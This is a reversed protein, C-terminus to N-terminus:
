NVIPEPVLVAIAPTTGAGEATIVKANPDCNPGQFPDCPAGIGLPALPSLAPVIAESTLPETIPSCAGGNAYLCVSLWSVPSSSSSPPARQTTAEASAASSASARIAPCEAFGADPNGLCIQVLSPPPHTASTAVAPKATPPHRQPRTMPAASTTRTPLPVPTISHHSTSSPSPTCAEDRKGIPLPATPWNKPTPFTLQDIPYRANYSSMYTQWNALQRPHLRPTLTNVLLAYDTPVDKRWELATSTILHNQSAIKSIMWDKYDNAWSRRHGADDFYIHQCHSIAADIGQFAQYIRTNTSEFLKLVIPNNAMDMVLALNNLYLLSKMVGNYNKPVAKLNPMDQLDPNWLMGKFSNLGADMGLFDPNQYSPLQAFITNLRTGGNIVDHVDFVNAMEACTVSENQYSFFEDLLKVEYVHDINVRTGVDGGLRYPQPQAALQLTDVFAWGPAGNCSVQTPVAWFAATQYFKSMSPIPSPGENNAVSAPGPYPPKYTYKSMTCRGGAVVTRTMLQRGREDLRFRGGIHGGRERKGFEDPITSPAYHLDVCSDCSSCSTTSSSTSSTQTSLTTMSAAQFSSEKVKSKTNSSGPKDPENGPGNVPAPGPEGIGPVGAGVVPLVPIIGGSGITVPSTVTTHDGDTRTALYQVTEITSSALNSPLAITASSKITSTPITFKRTREQPGLSSTSSSRGAVTSTALSHHISSTSKGIRSMAEKFSSHGAIASTAERSQSFSISSSSMVADGAANTLPSLTALLSSIAVVIAAVMSSEEASNTPKVFGSQSVGNSSQHPSTSKSLLLPPKRGPESSSHDQPTLLPPPAATSMAAQHKGNSLAKAHHSSISGRTGDLALDTHYSSTATNSRRSGTLAKIDNLSVDEGPAVSAVQGGITVITAASLSQASRILTQTSIISSPKIATALPKVTQTAPNVVVGYTASPSLLCLLYLHILYLCRM